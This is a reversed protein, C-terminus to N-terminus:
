RNQLITKLTEIEAEKSKIIEKYLEEIKEISYNKYIVNDGGSRTSFDNLIPKEASSFFSAVEVELIEAIRVLTDVTLKTENNEIKSYAKQTIGLKKALYEQSYNKEYRSKKVLDAISKFETFNNM